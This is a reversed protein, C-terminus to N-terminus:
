CVFTVVVVDQGQKDRELVDDTLASENVQFVIYYTAILEARLKRARKLLSM